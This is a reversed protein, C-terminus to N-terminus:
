WVSLESLGVVSGQPSDSKIRVYRARAGLPTEVAFRGSNAGGVITWREGDLSTEVGAWQYGGLRVVIFEIPVERGLDVYAFHNALPRDCEPNDEPCTEDDATRLGTFFDGDTLPCPSREQADGDATHVFCRAGRSPPPGATGQFPYSGSRNHIQVAGGVSDDWSERVAVVSGQADELVRADFSNAGSINWIAHGLNLSEFRIGLDEEPSDVLVKISDTSNQVTIQPDWFALAPLALLEQNIIFRQTISPGDLQTEVPPLRVVLNFESANGLSGQTDRGHMAFSFRGLQNTTDVAADKCIAPPSDGLCALVTVPGLVVGGIVEGVDPEKALAVKLDASPQGNRDLALGTVEINANPDLNSM